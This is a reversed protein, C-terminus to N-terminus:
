GKTNLRQKRQANIARNNAAIEKKSMKKSPANKVGCVKILTLLKNLHWKECDLPIQLTIMQYYIIEATIVEHNPRGGQEKFTTATHEDEIYANIRNVIDRNFASYTMDSVNKTMTMCRFYDLVEEESHQEKNLFPKHWKSEWKSISVLSHELQLLQEKTQVFLGNAEDYYETAPVTVLLM